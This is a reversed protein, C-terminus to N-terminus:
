VNRKKPSNLIKISLMSEVALFIIGILVLIVCVVANNDVIFSNMCSLFRERDNNFGIIQVGEFILGAIVAEVILLIVEYIERSEIKGVYSVFLLNAGGVIGLMIMAFLIQMQYPKILDTIIRIEEIQCLSFNMSILVFIISVVSPVALVLFCTINGAIVYERRRIPMCGYFFGMNSKSEVAFVASMVATAAVAFLGLLIPTFLFLCAIGAVVMGVTMIILSKRCMMLDMKVIKLITSM